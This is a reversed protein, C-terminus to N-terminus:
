DGALGAVATSSATPAARSPTLKSRGDACAEGRASVAAALAAAAEVRLRATRESTKADRVALAEPTAVPDDRAGESSANNSPRQSQRRTPACSGGGEAAAPAAALEDARRCGDLARRAAREAGPADGAAALAASLSLLARITRCDAEGLVLAGAAAERAYASAAGASDRELECARALLRSLAATPEYLQRAYASRGIAGGSLSMEGSRVLAEAAAALMATEAVRARALLRECGALADGLVRAAAGAAGTAGHALLLRGLAHAMAVEPWYAAALARTGITALADLVFLRARERCRESRLAAAASADPAADDDDAPDDDDDDLLATEDDDDAREGSAAAGHLAELWADLADLTGAGLQDDGAAVVSGDARAFALRLEAGRSAAHALLPACARASTAARAPALDVLLVARLVPTARELVRVAPERAGRAAPESLQPLWFRTWGGHACAVTRAAAVAVEFAGSPDAILLVDAPGVSAPDALDVYACRRPATAPRAIEAEVDDISLPEAAARASPPAGPALRQRREVALLQELARIDL